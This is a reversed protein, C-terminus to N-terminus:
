AEDVLSRRGVEEIESTTMTPLRACYRPGHQVNRASRCVVAQRSVLIGGATSLDASAFGDPPASVNTRFAEWHACVSNGQALNRRTKSKVNLSFWISFFTASGSMNRDSPTNEAPREDIPQPLSLLPLPVPPLPPALAVPPLPPTLAVPPVPPAAVPVPPVAAPPAPPL